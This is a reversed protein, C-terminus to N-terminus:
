NVFFLPRVGLSYSADGFNAYGYYYVFAFGTASRVGRLWYTFRRHIYEPALTFLPLQSNICGVEYGSSAVSTANETATINAKPSLKPQLSNLANDVTQIEGTATDTISIEGNLYAEKQEPTLSNWTNIVWTAQDEASLSAFKPNASADNWLQILQTAYDESYLACTKSILERKNVDEIVPTAQDEALINFTLTNDEGQLVEIKKQVGDIEATYTITGDQNKLAKVEDEIGDGDVDANFTLENIVVHLFDRM